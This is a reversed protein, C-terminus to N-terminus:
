TTANALVLAEIIREACTHTFPARARESIEATVRALYYAAFSAEKAGQVAEYLYTIANLVKSATADIGARSTMRIFSKLQDLCVRDGVRRLFELISANFVIDERSIERYTKGDFDLSHIRLRTFSGPIEYDEFLRVLSETLGVARSTRFSREALASALIHIYLIHPVTLGVKAGELLEAIKVSALSAFVRRDTLPEPITVLKIYDVYAVALGAALLSLWRDDLRVELEGVYPESFTLSGEYLEVKLLQPLAVRGDGLILKGRRSSVRLDGDLLQFLLGVFESVLDAYSQLADVKGAVARSKKLTDKDNKHLPPWRVGKSLKLNLLDKLGESARLLSYSADRCRLEVLDGRIEVDMEGFYSLASVATATIERLLLGEPPLEVLIRQSRSL